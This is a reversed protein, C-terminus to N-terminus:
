FPPEETSPAPAAWPDEAAPSSSAREARGAGVPIANFVLSKSVTDCLCVIQSRKEGGETTWEDTQLRGTVVVLDGKVLSEAINEALTVVTGRNFAVCQLWLVRDDVWEDRGEANTVKKKSAAVIRFKTVATGTPSYRLEPDAVVRGEVAIQPLM